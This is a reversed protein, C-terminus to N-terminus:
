SRDFVLFSWRSLVQVIHRVAEISVDEQSRCLDRVSVTASDNIKQLLRRVPKSCRVSFNRGRAFISLKDGDEMVLLRHHAPRVLVDTDSPVASHLRPLTTLQMNSDRRMQMWREATLFEAAIATIDLAQLQQHQLVEEMLDRAHSVVSSPFFTVGLTASFDDSRFVHFDGMAIFVADGPHLVYREALREYCAYDFSSTKDGRHELYKQRPIIWVHKPAPGLHMLLSHDNDDHIGFPTFGYNGIFSYTDVGRGRWGSAELFPAILDVCVFRDIAASWKTLGNVTLCFQDASLTKALRREANHCALPQDSAVRRAADFLDFRQGNDVYVRVSPMESSSGFASFIDLLSDRLYTPEFQNPLFTSRAFGVSHDWLRAAFDGRLMPTEYIYM